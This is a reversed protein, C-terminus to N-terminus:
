LRELLIMSSRLVKLVEPRAFDVPLFEPRCRGAFIPAPLVPFFLLTQLM